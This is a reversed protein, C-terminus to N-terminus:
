SRGQRVSLLQPRLLTIQRKVLTCQIVESMTKPSVDTYAHTGYEWKKVRDFVSLVAICDICKTNKTSSSSWLM